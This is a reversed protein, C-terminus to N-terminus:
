SIRLTLIIVLIHLTLKEVQNSESENMIRQSM